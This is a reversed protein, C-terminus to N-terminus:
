LYQVELTLSGDLAMDEVVALQDRHALVARVRLIGTISSYAGPVLSGQPAWASVVGNRIQGAGRKSWNNLAGGASITDVQQGDAVFSGPVFSAEYGGLRKKGVAGLGFLDAESTGAGLRRAAHQLLGPAVSSASNDVPKLGVRVPAECRISITIDKDDLSGHEALQSSKVTGFDLTGGGTLQPTCAVPKIVGAVKLEASPGAHALQAIPVCAPVALLLLSSKRM